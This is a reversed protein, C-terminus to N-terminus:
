KLTKHVNVQKTTEFWVKAGCSLPKDPSYVFTGIVSGDDGMIDVRQGYRNDLYTKASLVPAYNGDTVKSNARLTQHNVHIVTKM